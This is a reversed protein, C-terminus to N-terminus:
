WQIDLKELLKKKPIGYENWNRIEYYEDMMGDVDAINTSAGGSGRRKRMKPPLIDDKRSQGHNVMYMRKLNFIREGAELLEQGTMEWGTVMNIWSVVNEWTKDGLGFIIFKCCTLSDFVAMVDQNTKIFEPKGETSFRDMKRAKGYGFGGFEGGVEFDHSFSNLHCAGRTSTAYQLGTSDAARPDHAPFEMGRVHVAFEPAIGGLHESARKTGEALIDGFDERFAIKKILAIMDDPNGFRAETGGLMEKTIIGNEYAEMTFSIINGTGITDLGYRNCLENGLAIAELNDICCNAGLLGVTEYEPGAGKVCKYKGEKVEITRGCGIVCQACNYPKVLITEAMKQGTINEINFSGGSWNRVPLDGVAEVTSVGCTTGYNGLYDKTNNRIEPAWKKISAKLEEENVVPPKMTGQVVIAKLKKSGMVTGVGCRASTRGEYGDNMIAAVKSLNEGGQGISATVAKKGHKERLIDDVEYTDKGWLEAADLIEVEGNNISLYVPIESKGKFVIGDYGAKKLNAGWTGGSNAEGYLGTLPSKTVVQHRGFNPVKTGVLPGAMFILLNEPGLPDTKTDTEDYLIKAGLGSGGLYQRLIKEEFTQYSIEKTTLDVRVVKGMYGGLM